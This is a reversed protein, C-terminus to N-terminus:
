RSGRSTTSAPGLLAPPARRVPPVAPGALSSKAAASFDAPQLTEDKINKSTVTNRKIDAGTIKKAAVAGGSAALVLAVVLLAVSPISRPLITM